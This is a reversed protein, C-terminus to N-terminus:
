QHRLRFHARNLNSLSNFVQHKLMSATAFVVEGDTGNKTTLHVGVEPKSGIQNPMRAM